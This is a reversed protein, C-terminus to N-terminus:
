LEPTSFLCIWPILPCYIKYIPKDRGMSVAWRFFFDSWCAFFTTDLLGPSTSKAISSTVKARLKGSPCTSNTQSIWIVCPNYDIRSILFPKPALQFSKHALVHWSCSAQIVPQLVSKRHVRCKLVVHCLHWCTLRILVRPTIYSHGQVFGRTIQSPWLIVLKRRWKILSTKTYIKIWPVELKM